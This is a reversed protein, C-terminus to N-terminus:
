GRILVFEVRRNDQRGQETDNSAIPMKEGFGRSSLRGSAVGKEVLWDYVARARSESLMQNEGPEGVNDTHGRIEIRIEPNDSLM